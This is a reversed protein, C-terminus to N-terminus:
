ETASSKRNLWTDFKVLEDIKQELAALEVKAKGRNQASEDVLDTELRHALYDKKITLHAIQRKVEDKFEKTHKDM